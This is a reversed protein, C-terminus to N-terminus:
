QQSIRRPVPDEMGKPAAYVTLAIGGKARKELGAGYHPKEGNQSGTIDLDGNM